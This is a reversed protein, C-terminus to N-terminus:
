FYNKDLVRYQIAEAIHKSKIEKSQELDAITRAVKIIRGYARMSLKLNDFAKELIKNSTDDLSCYKKMLKPTLSDNCYIHDEKYRAIQIKRAENVRQKIQASTEINKENIKEYKVQPVEVQIDIRDLLPGSIKSLYKKIMKETCKCEKVESGYYGCPCPNMSAVLMFKSPYTISSNVRSITIKGDEIPARLVEIIHKNFETFEDLFLVGYNSLSIEGPKPIRGGGILSTQTISHHPTRFPRKTIIPNKEDLLGSVSYIKTIELSEDYSLDPLITILRQALMTKGTGPSGILLCNHGGAAAIELARKAKEQGKVDSFDISYMRENKIIDSWTEKYESLEFESNLYDIVEKLNSAGKINIGDVISVEKENIKPIIIEDFGIKKAEICIPLIGKVSNMSGDLSLEGVFAIKSLDKKTKLQKTSILIGISIALDMSSGEKRIDAPALNVVIKRSEFEYGSNKIAVSVREKSEKISVDPLGVINFEPIGASVDVQVYVTYGKLGNLYISKINSLM